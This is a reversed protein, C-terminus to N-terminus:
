LLILFLPLITEAPYQPPLPLPHLPHYPLPHPCPPSIFWAKYACIFLLLFIFFIFIFFFLTFCLRMQLWRGILPLKWKVAADSKWISEDNNVLNVTLNDWLDKKLTKGGFFAPKCFMEPQEDTCSHLALSPICNCIQIDWRHSWKSGTQTEAPNYKVM